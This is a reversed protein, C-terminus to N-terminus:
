RAAGGFRILLGMIVSFATLLGFTTIVYWKIMEAKMDALDKGIALKLEAIDAKTALDSLREVPVVARAASRALEDPVGVSILAQHLENVIISM